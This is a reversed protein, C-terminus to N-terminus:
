QQGFEGLSTGITTSNGGIPCQLIHLEEGSVVTKRTANLGYVLINRIMCLQSEDSALFRLRSIRDITSQHATSKFVKASSVYM